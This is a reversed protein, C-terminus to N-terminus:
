DKIGEDLGMHLVSRDTLAPCGKQRQIAVYVLCAVPPRDM